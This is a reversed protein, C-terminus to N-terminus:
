SQSMDRSSKLDPREPSNIISMRRRDGMLFAQENDFSLARDDSNREVQARQQPSQIHIELEEESPISQKYIDLKRWEYYIYMGVIITVILSIVLFVVGVVSDQGAKLMNGLYVSVWFKFSSMMAALLWKHFEIQPITAFLPTSFHSPLASLRVLLVMLFGGKEIIEVLSGYTKDHTQRFEVAREKFFHRFSIFLLSEGTLTGIAVILFGYVEGWVFGTLISLLEHGFLPPFSVLMLLFAPVVFAFPM